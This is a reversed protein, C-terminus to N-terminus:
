AACVISLMAWIEVFLGSKRIENHHNQTVPQNRTVHLQHAEASPLMHIITSQLEVGHSQKRSSKFVPRLAATHSKTAEYASM